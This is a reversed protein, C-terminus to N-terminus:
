THVFELLPRRPGNFILLYVAGIRGWRTQEEVHVSWVLVELWGSVYGSM